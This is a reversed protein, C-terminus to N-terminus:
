WPRGAAVRAPEQDLGGVVVAVLREDALREGAALGALVGTHDLDGPACLSAEVLAPRVQVMLPALGGADDRDRAGALEGREEPLGGGKVSWLGSSRARSAAPARVLVWSPGAGDRSARSEVIPLRGRRCRGNRSLSGRRVGPRSTLGEFILRVGCDILSSRGGTGGRCRGALALWWVM